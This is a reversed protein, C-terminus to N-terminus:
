RSARAEVPDKEVEIRVPFAQKLESLHTIVLIKDFDSQVAQIAEM